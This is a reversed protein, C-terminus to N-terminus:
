PKRLFQEKGDPLPRAAYSNSAAEIAEAAWHTTPVDPWTTQPLGILAPRGFLANLVVVAEARTLARDPRFSGDEYGQMLGAQMAAAISREAWHGEVDNASEGTKSLELQRWAVVISAMEARTIPAHPRFFGREDGRMVGSLKMHAVFPRAWHDAAVDPFGSYGTSPAADAANRSLIAAVEARAIAREPHFKGDEYGLIYRNRIIEEAVSVITFTSFKEIEIELAVPNGAEDYRIVGRNIAKEGDSHEIFVALRELYAQREAPDEPLSVGSLPFELKTRRSSYNTEITMPQGLVRVDGSPSLNKLEEANLVRTEVQEREEPQKIPVVRFYLDKGDGQLLALADKSLTIKVDNTKIELNIQKGSLEAVSGVPVNVVVEDAPADPLDDIVITVVDAGAGVAKDISEAAKGPDFAVTDIQKGNPGENRTIDVKAAPADGNGAVVDVQRTRGPPPPSPAATLTVVFTKEFSENGADTVRIRVSYQAKAGRRLVAATKLTNGDVAFSANDTAGDGSVLSYSFTDGADADTAAFTGVTTGVALQERISANSLSVDTPAENVNTVAITFTAENSLSPAGDDTVRIRVTYSSKTEFDFASSARLQDGDINFSANDADGDGAVLAYTFSSGADPDAASLTGVAANPGANEAVSTASLSLDTPTENVDTVAVTFAKEFTLGPAGSDTVRILVSYSSKAEYDFSSTARLEDGDITFSGNDDDGNGAVLAYAFTNSANADTASLTGVVANAVANEEISATSLLIDTPATNVETVSITLPKEFALGGNDTARVRVAYSNQEDFDFTENARLENGVITFADNDTSGDGAVLAYAFSDGADPDVASLTGVATGAAQGEAIGNPTLSIDTPAENVDTATITFEEERSLAPSGNDTVRIRVSYSSKAEFNLSSTASLQEGSIHFSANDTDGDGAVLVYTFSSGADSDTASLTGVAADAGANEAVSTASLSLDTPAENVDTVAITFAKEFTLGPSGSDTVRILVSYSSMAEYDFSSTARLENGSINFSGNDDDGEGSVLTYTFTQSANADTASLTGVLANAGANEAVSMSSLTIDTPAVNVEEVTITLAKSFTLGGNDTALVRVAYSDKTDYDLPDNARLEDGVITFDGNDADGDGVAFAYTFSSGADPDAANLTGVATGAAQGESISNPTLSIDTPAENVDTVTITFTEEYSQAPSGNDTVRVRVSYASQAEFNLSSTTRLQDGDITFSGNGADGDGAVLTFTFSDGADPDTASLTGVVANAGVNEAVSTSSLTIDAPAENVDTVTITFAKDFTLAPSGSDTVRILVSHSSQAEYDLSSTARLQNGNVTFSGNDDDGEGSVLAYTFTQSANADTASLTGVVANAGANEEISTSSLSIDTPSENVETVSITLPKEFVLGGSDTAQVRVAYSDQEDYDLTENARLEDGVITFAANDEGGDGAVLAYAFSDGADPDVASLTGVATGAAQGEAIGSPTLAIDTPAENVNTATITFAEEYSRAPSGDDTVRILVSYSNKAEFDLSSTTRLQNGDIAFSGNDDGGDGAVLAYTFADGADPDIASLTGVVADAGANEALTSASLSIDTPAENVDTVTITFPKEFTLGPSGSDTVRILVSYSSKAEYDFSSAARLENGNVTFSGNDDDGEGTVLAYTFTQSANDDTASLSGVVANAGANEAISTASLSIDTPAVNVEEVTITLAKSFTLGSNDTARVRVSYSDQADYDLTEDALLEDNVITFAANDTSGDGAVLEYTFSDGADPDVASLTGVATGAAQGEAISNPTLSIDTPAENVNTVSITVAEEFTAGGSDTVQIRVSYSSDSEYDLSNTARLQSGSINFSGNDDGGTGAVLAYTFSDGADPDVASLTGVVANAGANEAVSAPSLAIDTPAQNTPAADNVNTLKITNFASLDEHDEATYSSDLFVFTIISDGGINSATLLDGVPFTVTATGGIFNYGTYDNWQSPDTSPVPPMQGSQLGAYTWADNSGVSIRLTDLGAGLHDFYNMTIEANSYDKDSSVTFKAYGRMEITGTGGVAIYNDSMQEVNYDQGVTAILSAAIDEAHAAGGGFYPQAIGFLMAFLATKVFFNKYSGSM